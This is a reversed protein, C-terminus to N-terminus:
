DDGVGRELANIRERIRQREARIPAYEAETIWGEAFKIAKYDSAQLQAKLADIEAQAIAIREETTTKADPVSTIIPEAGIKFEYHKM